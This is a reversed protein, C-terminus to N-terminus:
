NTCLGTTKVGLDYYTKHITKLLSYDTFSDQGLEWIMIGSLNQAALKVKRTITPRGNFYKNGLNDIESNSNNLEVMSGYTFSNANSSNVFDYGYFPVGLTLKQGSVGVNNKWFNLGSQAHNYSSHQGPSSPNWPGTYDYAMINIFDFANLADLSVLSYKTESPFAATLGKSHINLKQKLSIVFDNYGVTVAEWELDVDVGDLNNDLVFEIIKDILINRDVSSVLYKKWTNAVEETLAGGALSIYIQIDNNQSKARNIIDSLSNNGSSPFIITGDSQPNAFALNLHTLKCYEIQNNLSFRYYPLYGVVRAKTSFLSISNNGNNNDSENDDGYGCSIIIFSFCILKFYKNM